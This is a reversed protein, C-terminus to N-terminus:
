FGQRDLIIEVVMFVSSLLNLCYLQCVTLLFPQGLEDSEETWGRGVNFM